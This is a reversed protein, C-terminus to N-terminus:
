NRRESVRMTVPGSPLQASIERTTPKALQECLANMGSVMSEILAKLQSSDADQSGRIAAIDAKIQSMTVAAAGAAIGSISETTPMGAIQRELEDIRFHAEEDIPKAM